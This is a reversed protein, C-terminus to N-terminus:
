LSCEWEEPAISRYTTFLHELLTPINITITNTNINRSGRLYFELLAQGLQKTLCQEIAIVERYLRIAEKHNERLRTSEHQSTAPPIVLLCPHVPRVYDTTSVFAYKPQTLMLGIHGNVGRGLDSTVSSVNAKMKDKIIKLCLHGPQGHIRTLTQYKFYTNIYEINTNTM